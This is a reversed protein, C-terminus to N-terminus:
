AGRELKFALLKMIGRRVISAVKEVYVKIMRRSNVGEMTNVDSATKSPTKRKFMLFAIFLMGTIM